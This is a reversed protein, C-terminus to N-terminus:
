SFNYFPLVYQYRDSQLKTLDEYINVGTYISYNNDELFLNFGSSLNDPNKPIIESNSLNDGFLKLYTDKSVRELFINLKSVLFNNLGLDSEFKGFLHNINKKKNTSPSTFNNVIGIDAILSSNKNKQRYENQLM